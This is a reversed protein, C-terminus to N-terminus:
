YKEKMKELNEANETIDSDDDVFIAVYTIQNDEIVLIILPTGGAEVEQINREVIYKQTESKSIDKINSSGTLQSTINLNSGM